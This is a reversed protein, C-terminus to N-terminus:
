AAPATVSATPTSSLLPWAATSAMGATQIGQTCACSPYVREVLALICSEM